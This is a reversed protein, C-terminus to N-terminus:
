ADDTGTEGQPEASLGNSELNEPVITPHDIGLPAQNTAM